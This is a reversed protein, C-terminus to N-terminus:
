LVWGLGGKDPLSDSKEGSLPLNPPTKKEEEGGFILYVIKRLKRM